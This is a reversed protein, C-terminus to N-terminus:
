ASLMATAHLIPDRLAWPVLGPLQSASARYVRFADVDFFVVHNRHAGAAIAGPLQGFDGAERQRAVRFLVGVILVAIDVRKAQADGALELKPRPAAKGSGPVVQGAREGHRVVVDVIAVAV